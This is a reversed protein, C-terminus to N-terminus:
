IKKYTTLDLISDSAFLISPKKPEEVTKLYKKERFKLKKPKFMVSYVENSSICMQHMLIPITNTKHAFIIYSCMSPNLVSGEIDEQVNDFKFHFWIDIYSCM